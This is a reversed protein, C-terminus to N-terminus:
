VLLPVLSSKVINELGHVPTFRYTQMYKQAEGIIVNDHIMSFPDVSVNSGLVANPHISALPSIM